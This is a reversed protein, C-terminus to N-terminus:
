LPAVVLTETSKIGELKHIGHFVVKLADKITEREIEAIVDYAGTVPLAKVVGELERLQEVVVALRNPQVRVLVYITSM